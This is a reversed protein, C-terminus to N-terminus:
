DYWEIPKSGPVSGILDREASTRTDVLDIAGAELLTWAEAPTLLGAIPVNREKARQAAAALISTIASM